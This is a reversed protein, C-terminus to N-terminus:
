AHPSGLLGSSMTPTFPAWISLRGRRVCCIVRFLVPCLKWAFLFFHAPSCSFIHPRARLRFFHGLYLKETTRISSEKRRGVQELRGECSQLQRGWGVSVQVM